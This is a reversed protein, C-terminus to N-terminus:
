IRKEIKEYFLTYDRSCTRLVEYPIGTLRHIAHINLDTFKILGYGINYNIDLKNGSNDAKMSVTQVEM